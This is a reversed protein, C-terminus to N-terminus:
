TDAKAHPVNATDTANNAEGVIPLSPTSDPTKPMGIMSPNHMTSGTIPSVFLLVSPNDVATIIPKNVEYATQNVHQKKNSVGTAAAMIRAGIVTRPSSGRVFKISSLAVM